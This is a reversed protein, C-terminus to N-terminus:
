VDRWCMECIADEAVRCAVDHAPCLPAGCVACNEEGMRGCLPCVLWAMHESTLALQTVTSDARRPGSNPRRAIQAASM